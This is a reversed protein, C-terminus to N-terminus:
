ANFSVIRDFRGHSGVISVRFLFSSGSLGLLYSRSSQTRFRIFHIVSGLESNLDSQRERVYKKCVLGSEELM